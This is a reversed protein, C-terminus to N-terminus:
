AINHIILSTANASRWVFILFFVLLSIFVVVGIWVVLREIAQDRERKIRAKEQKERVRIEAQLKVIQGWSNPGYNMNVFTRLEHEMREAEKKASWEEIAAEEVSGYMKKTPPSEKVTKIAGMWRSLDGAMGEIERGHAFGQKIANFAATAVAIASMPDMFYEQEGRYKCRTV